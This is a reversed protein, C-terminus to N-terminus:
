SLCSVCVLVLCFESYSLGQLKRTVLLFMDHARKDVGM